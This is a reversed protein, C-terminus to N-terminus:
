RATYEFKVAGDRYDIMLRFLSLLPMGMIGSIETGAGRSIGSLDISSVDRNEQRFGAFVLFVKNASFVNKVEGSIGKIRMDSDQRVKTVQRAAANSIMTLTAGTDVLFFREPGGEIRTNVLLDSNIRVVRTFGDLEKGQYRNVPTEGDWVPGPLLGLSLERRFFDLTVLFREFIAPGILGAAEGVAKKDSVHVICNRFEVDGVRVSEAFGLYGTPDAKDGIGSLNLDAIRKVGAQEALVRNIVVGSAGTDLLLPVSKAGNVRVDVGFRIPSRPSDMLTKLRVKSPQYPSALQWTRRGALFKRLEMRAVLWQYRRRGDRDLSALYRELADAQEQDTAANRTFAGVIAEDHPALRSALRYLLFATQNLSLASAVRATGYLARM